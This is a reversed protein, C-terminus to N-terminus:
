PPRGFNRTPPMLGTRVLPGVAKRFLRRGPSRTNPGTRDRHASGSPNRSIGFVWLSPSCYSREGPQYGDYRASYPAFQTCPCSDARRRAPAAVPQVTKIAAKAMVLRAPAKANRAHPDNTAEKPTLCENWLVRGPNSVHFYCPNRLLCGRM